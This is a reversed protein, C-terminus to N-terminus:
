KALTQRHRNLVLDKQVRNEPSPQSNQVTVNTAKRSHLVRIAPCQHAMDLVQFTVIFSCPFAVFASEGENSISGLHM